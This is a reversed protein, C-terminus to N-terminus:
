GLADVLPLGVIERRWGSLVPLDREGRILATMDRRTALVEPQIDLEAGIARARDQLRKLLAMEENTFKPEPPLAPPEDTARATAVSELLERGSREVLGAAMGAIAALAALTAPRQRATERLVDDAIVWGRPLNRKIARAERWTALARLAAREAPPLREIGKFRQWADEPRTRYLSADALARCDEDHWGTRGRADLRAALEERLAELHRVDDAAYQLQEDSLPRRAWDTRAHGKELVVGLAKAVLEGYGIQAPFGLLAAALQTDFVPAPVADYLPLLVELDQRAAHLIKVTATGTLLARLPQLDTLALPDVLAIRGRAALQLLCLRAYYTRERMFETDVALASAGDLSAVVDDLRAPETM